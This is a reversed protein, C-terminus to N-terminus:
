HRLQFTYRGFMDDCNWQDTLHNMVSFRLLPTKTGAPLLNDTELLVTARNNQPQPLFGPTTTLWLALVLCVPVYALPVNDQPFVGRTKRRQSTSTHKRARKVNSKTESSRSSSPLTSQVANTIPGATALIAREFDDPM